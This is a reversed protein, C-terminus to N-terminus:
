AEDLLKANSTPNRKKWFRIIRWGLLLGFVLTYALAEGLDSRAQWILHLCLLISCLYVARHLQAWRRGLRRQMTRTSTLALPLMLLWAGFGVTIYPREILEEAVRAVSWGLFFQLYVLLHLCAYFFVFLGLTRRIRIWYSNDTWSRLPSMLLTLILIRASWEGTMHMLQEAPDPGLRDAFIAGVIAAFPILCLLFPGHRSLYQKFM